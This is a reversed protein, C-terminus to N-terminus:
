RNVTYENVWHFKAARLPFKNTDDLLHLQAHIKYKGLGGDLTLSNADTQGFSFRGVM